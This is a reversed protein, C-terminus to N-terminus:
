PGEQFDVEVRNRGNNKARYLASDAAEIFQAMTIDANSGNFYAIGISITIRIGNFDCAEVDKRLREGIPHLDKKTAYPLVLAFEEGGYRAAIDSLRTAKKLFAALGRLVQDGALHGHEDNVRKFFDIDVMALSLPNQYRKARDLEERFRLEFYKHHYLGTLGDTISEQYLKANEIAIAVQNALAFLITADENSFDGDTKNIAELVGILRDKAIVPVCVMNRTVFGSQGDVGSYFRADAPVNNSVVPERHEAVWGAIGTGRALRISKVEERKEGVAVEFFLEGTQHDVLLLSGAETGLLRTAAIIVKERVQKPDLSSNILTSMEILTNLQNLKTDSYTAM